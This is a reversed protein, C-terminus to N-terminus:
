MIIENDNEDLMSDESSNNTLSSLKKGDMSYSEEGTIRYNENSKLKEIYEEDSNASKIRVTFETVKNDCIEVVTIRRAEGVVSDLTDGHDIFYRVANEPCEKSMGYAEFIANVLDDRTGQIQPNYGYSYEAKFKASEFASAFINNMNERTLTKVDIPNALTITATSFFTSQEGKVYSCIFKIESISDSNGIDWTVYGIKSADFTRTFCTKGAKELFYTDLATTIEQSFDKVAEEVNEPAFEEIEYNQTSFTVSEKDGLPYTATQSIYYNVPNAINEIIEEDTKGYVLITYVNVASDTEDAIHFERMGATSSEVEKYYKKESDSGIVKFLAKAIDEDIYTQKANFEFAVERTVDGDTESSTVSGDVIKDIDVPDTFTYNAVEVVRDKDNTAYTFSLCITTIEDNENANFGWTQSLPTKNDLLDELVYENAFSLAYSSYDQIFEEFTINVSPPVVISDSESEEESESEEISESDNKSEVLFSEYQFSEKKLQKCSIMVLMLVICIAVAIVNIIKFKM